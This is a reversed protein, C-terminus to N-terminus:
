AGDPLAPTTAPRLDKCFYVRNFGDETKRETEVYGLRPYLVLNEHMAANTYLRLEAHGRTRAVDECLAILARGIGQGALEPSVAVNELMLHDPADRFVIFGQVRNQDDTAVHVEGAAILGAFDAAMPAPERGIRPVYRAYAARACARIAAEDGMTAPRIM